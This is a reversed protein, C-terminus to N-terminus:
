GETSAHAEGVQYVREEDFWCEVPKGESLQDSELQVRPMGSLYECRATAVGIFGTIRDCYRQGITVKM